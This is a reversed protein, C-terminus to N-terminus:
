TNSFSLHTVKQFEGNGNLLGKGFGRFTVNTGGFFWATYLNAYVVPYSHGLWYPVNTSWLLEGHLEVDCIVLNTINMVQNIHFVNETFVVTGNTGCLEFAQLISPTDDVPQGLHTISEPYLYCTTGNNVVFARASSALSAILVLYQLMKVLVNKM